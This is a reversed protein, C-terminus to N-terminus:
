NEEAVLAPMPKRAAADFARNLAQLAKRKSTALEELKAYKEADSKESAIIALEQKRITTMQKRTVKLASGLTAIPGADDFMEKAEDKKGARLAAQIPDVEAQIKDMREFGAQRDSENDIEGYLQKIFPSRRVDITPREISQRAYGMNLIDLAFSVPGGGYSRALNELTAPTFDLFGSKFTSGGTKDNLTEAARQFIKGAQGAFYRSSDAVYESGQDPYMQRGFSNINLLSQMPANVVDPTIALALSKTNELSRALEQVPMYAGLMSSVSKKTAEALGAGRAPDLKNRYLDVAQRAVTAFFNYGYPMPIKVYRGTKSGPIAEGQKSSPPLVIVINRDKVNEPIKDWWAVGDDDDGMSANQLALMALGTMGAGLTALVKPNALAQAVRATGQVAPNFFLFWAALNPTLTGKRNFNVTINKSVSAAEAVTRGGDRASMFAALRTSNEIAGNISEILELAKPGFKRPDAGNMGAKDIRTALDKALDEITKFDMFGTKGGTARFLQYDAPPKGNEAMASQYLAKPMYALMRGAAAFGETGIMNLTGAQLDRAFNLVTFVPSLSTYLRSLMRNGRLMHGLWWGVQEIGMNRMQEVLKPDKIRVFVERGGDKIGITDEGKMVQREEKIVQNGMDDITMVPSIQTDNIVWNTPDPNDLVFKLFTRLVENKGARTLARVRDAIINEIIDSAESYRGKARMTEKGRINFGQGVGPRKTDGRPNGKLPVYFDYSNQLADYQDQTILGQSLMIDRTGQTWKMLEAHHKEFLPALGSQHADDLIADADEDTMGSWSDFGSSPNAERMTRMRANREKAHKAYAYLQMSRADIKDKVLGELLKQVDADFDEIKSGVVGWYREEAKYFDNAETLIGGQKRVADLVQRWRNYRDQIKEIFLSGNGFGPLSYGAAPRSQKLAAGWGSKLDEIKEEGLEIPGSYPTVDSVDADEAGYAITVHPKYAPAENEFDWSAGAEKIAAWRANLDPSSVMLVIDGGLIQVSRGDDDVSAAPAPPLDRSDVPSRSYAVTVHMKEPPIIDRIGQEEAWAVIDEGNEVPYSAYMPAPEVARANPNYPNEERWQEALSMFESFDKDVMEDLDRFGLDSARQGLWQLQKEQDESYARSQRIDASKLDFAGSNGISSKIQEPKFVIYHTTDNLVGKMKTNQKSGEGWKSSVTNDIIGDFGAKEIAQRVLDPGIMNGSSDEAYQVANRAKSLLADFPAEDYVAELLDSLQIQEERNLSGNGAKRMSSSIANVFKRGIREDTFGKAPLVLPNVMRVYAPIIHDAGGYLKKQAQDLARPDDYEWGKSGAIQEAMMTINNALDPGIGAYNASADETSSTLYFGKGFDGGANGKARKFVTFDRTTGHYVERPTGDPNVVKSDGFWAKFEPTEPARRSQRIDRSSPDFTTASISSKLRAPDFVAYSIGTGDRQLPYKVTDFGALKMAEAVKLKGAAMDGRTINGDPDVESGLAAAVANEPFYGGRMYDAVTSKNPSLKSVAEQLKEMDAKNPTKKTFDLVRGPNLLLPYVVAGDGRAYNENVEESEAAEAVYVASGWAAMSRAKTPDFETIDSKSGHIVRVTYGAARAAAPIRRAQRVPMEFQRRPKISVSPAGVPAMRVEPGTMDFKYATAKGPALLEGVPPSLRKRGIMQGWIMPDQSPRVTKVSYHGGRDELVVAQKIRGDRVIVDGNADQYIEMGSRLLGVVHRAFNEAADPTVGPPARMRNREANDKIHEMGFGKHPGYAAGVPLRVPKSKIAGLAPVVALDGSLTGEFGKSEPVVPDDISPRGQSIRRAQRPPEIYDDPMTFFQSSASALTPAKAKKPVYLDAHQDRVADATESRDQRAKALASEVALREADRMDLGAKSMVEIADTIADLDYPPLTTAAQVCFSMKATM